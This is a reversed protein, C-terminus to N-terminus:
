YVANDRLKMKKYSEISFDRFWLLESLKHSETSKKILAHQPKIVQSSMDLKRARCVFHKSTGSVLLSIKHTILLGNKFTIQFSFGSVCICFHMYVYTYHLLTLSYSHSFSSLEVTKYDIVYMLFTFTTNTYRSHSYIYKLTLMYLIFLTCGDIHIYVYIM